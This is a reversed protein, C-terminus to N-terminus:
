LTAHTVRPGVGVKRPFDLVVVAPLLGPSGDREGGASLAAGGAVELSMVDVEVRAVVRSAVDGDEAALAM